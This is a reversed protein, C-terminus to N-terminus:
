WDRYAIPKVYLPTDSIHEFLKHIKNLFKLYEDRNDFRYHGMMKWKQPFIGVSEDGDYHIEFGLTQIEM